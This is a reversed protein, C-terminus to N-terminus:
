GQASVFKFPVLKAAAADYRNFVFPGINPSGNVISYTGIVSPRDTIKTRFDHVITGRNNAQNGASQLVSILASMAEYGFIAGLAPQHGYAAEFDAVFTHGAPSLDNPLFGPASIYVNPQAGSSLASSFAGTDLASPGFLKMKPNTAAVANFLGTAASSSSAGDFMADAGSAAIKAATAPGQTVAIAPSAGQAAEAVALAIASGYDSGDSTVYLTKVHLAQMEQVQAKAELASSPVVQAYTYGYSSYAEGFYKQPSDPVAKTAQTYELATDGPSVQLVDSYNTITISPGSTGPAFEGLYAITNSNEIASRANDTVKGSTLPVFKLTFSGVKGGAQQWALKEADLIDQGQAPNVSSGASSAYVTLTKGSVSVSSTSATGSCGAVAVALAAAACASTARGRALLGRSM